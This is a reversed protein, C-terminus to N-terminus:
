RAKTWRWADAILTNLDSRKPEWGLAERAYAGNAILTPPDGLRAPGIDFHITKGTVNEAAKIVQMVSFGSGTGLNAFQTKANEDLASLALIHAAALDNVHVYDRVCTGDKTPYTNGHVTLRSGDMAAALVNPVLHPEPDHDEGIECDPDAGAANFYRLAFSSLGDSAAREALMNEVLLKSEGYPSIPKTPESEPIPIEEPIGYIACTSSFVLKRIGASKMADLLNRSGEVNNRLYLEPNEVSESVLALAAFHMVADPDHKEIVQSLRESDLIDGVELPGWKVATDHGRILNDYTVPTHGAAALAKCAHSGVYGAGGTVLITAM